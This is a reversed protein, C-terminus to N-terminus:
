VILNRAIGDDLDQDTGTGIYFVPFFHHSFNMWPFHDAHFILFTNM